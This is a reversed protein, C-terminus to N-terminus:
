TRRLRVARIKDFWVKVDGTTEGLLLRRLAAIQTSVSPSGVRHIAVHVAGAEQLLAGDELKHGAGTSFAANLGALFGRTQLAVIGATVGSRYALSTAHARRDALVRPQLIVCECPM